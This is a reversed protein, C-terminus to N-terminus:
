FTCEFLGRLHDEIQKSRPGRGFFCIQRESVDMSKLHVDLRDEPLYHSFLDGWEVATIGSGYFYDLYGIQELELDEELRYLDFHYLPYVGEYENIIAFTPSTIIEPSIGLGVGIAKVLLTKGAGLDGNLNLFDGPSLLKGLQAGIEMTQEPNISIIELM